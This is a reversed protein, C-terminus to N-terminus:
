ALSTHGVYARNQLGVERVRHLLDVEGLLEVYQDPLEKLQVLLKENM